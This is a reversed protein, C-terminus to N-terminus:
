EHRAEQEQHAETSLHTVRQHLEDMLADEQALFRRPERVARHLLTLARGLTRHRWELYIYWHLLVVFGLVCAIWMWGPM